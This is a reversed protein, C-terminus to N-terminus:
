NSKKMTTMLKISALKSETLSGTILTKLSKLVRLGKLNMECLEPMFVITMANTYDTPPIKLTPKTTTVTHNINAIRATL